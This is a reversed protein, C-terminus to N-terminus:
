REIKYLEKPEIRLVISLLILFHGSPASKSDEWISILPRDCGVRKALEEMTLGLHKRRIRLLEGQWIANM